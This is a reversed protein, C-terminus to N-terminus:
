VLLAGFLENGHEAAQKALEIARLTYVEDQTMDLERKEYYLLPM